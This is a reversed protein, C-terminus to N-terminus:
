KFKKSHRKERNMISFKPQKNKYFQVNKFDKNYTNKIAKKQKRDPKPTQQIPKYAFFNKLKQPDITTITTPKPITIDTIELKVKKDTANYKGALTLKLKITSGSLKELIAKYKTTTLTDGFPIITEKPPEIYNNQEYKISAPKYVNGLYKKMKTLYAFDYGYSYNSYYYDDGNYDASYSKHYKNLSLSTIPEKNDIYDDKPSYDYNVQPYLSSYDTYLYPNYDVPSPAINPKYKENNEKIIKHILESKGSGKPGIYIQDIPQAYPYKYPESSDRYQPEIEEPEWYYDHIPEIKSLITIHDDYNDM